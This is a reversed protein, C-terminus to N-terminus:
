NSKNSMYGVQPNVRVKMDIFVLYDGDAVPCAAAYCVRSETTYKCSGGDEASTSFPTTSSSSPPKVIKRTQLCAKNCESWALDPCSPDGRVIKPGYCPVHCNRTGDGVATTNKCTNVWTQTGLVLTGKNAAIGDCSASCPTSPQISCTANATTTGPTLPPPPKPHKKGGGTKGGGGEGPTTPGGKDLYDEYKCTSKAFGLRCPLYLMHLIINNYM